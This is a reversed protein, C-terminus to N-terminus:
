YPKTEIIQVKDGIQCANEPDHCHFKKSFKVTTNYIPHKVLREILVVITKNM